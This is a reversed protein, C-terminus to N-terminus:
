QILFGNCNEIFNAFVELDDLTCSYAPAYEINDITVPSYIIGNLPVVSNLEKTMEETVGPYESVKNWIGLNYYVTDHKVLAFFIMLESLLESLTTCTEATVQSGEAMDFSEKLEELQDKSFSTTPESLNLNSEIAITLLGGIARWTKVPYSVVVGPVESNVKLEYEELTKLMEPSANEPIPVIVKDKPNLGFLYIAMFIFLAGVLSLV